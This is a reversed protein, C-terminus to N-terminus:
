RQEANCPRTNSSVERTWGRTISNGVFVLRVDGLSVTGGLDRTLVDYEASVYRQLDEASRPAAGASHCPGDPSGADTATGACALVASAAATALLAHVALNSLFRSSTRDEM